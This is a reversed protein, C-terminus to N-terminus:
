NNHELSGWLATNKFIWLGGARCSCVGNSSCVGNGTRQGLPLWESMHGGDRIIEGAGGVKQSM